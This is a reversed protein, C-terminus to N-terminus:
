YWSTRNVASCRVLQRTIRTVTKTSGKLGEESLVEMKGSLLVCNELLWRAVGCDGFLGLM